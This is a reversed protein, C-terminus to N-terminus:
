KRGILFNIETESKHNASRLMNLFQMKISSFKKKGFFQQLSVMRDLRNEWATVIGEEAPGDFALERDKKIAELEITLGLKIMLDKLKGGMRFDYVNKQREYYSKFMKHIDADLPQHAFLDNIEVLAIWGKPKLLAIWNKLVSIFNPFYAAAFSSWIGDALPLSVENVQHLDTCLYQINPRINEQTAFEIIDKNFDIGIVRSAREALLVSVEGTGCGLDLILDSPLIPLKNIYTNWNRWDSQRKYEHSIDKM